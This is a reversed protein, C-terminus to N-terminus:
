IQPIGGIKGPMYVIYSTDSLKYIANISELTGIFAQVNETFEQTSPMQISNENLYNILKDSFAIYIGYKDELWKLFASLTDYSEGTEVLFLKLLLETIEGSMAFYKQRANNTPYVIRAQKGQGSLMSSVVLVSSSMKKNLEVIARAVEKREVNRGKFNIQLYDILFESAKDYDKKTGFSDFQALKSNKFIKEEDKEIITLENNKNRKFFATSGMYNKLRKEFFNESMRFIKERMDSFSGLASLHFKGSDTSFNPTGKILIIPENREFAKNVLYLTQYFNLFLSFLNIKRYIDMEFFCKSEPSLFSDFDKRFNVKFNKRVDVVEDPLVPTYEDNNEKQIEDKISESVINDIMSIINGYISDNNKANFMFNSIAEKDKKLLIDNNNEDSYLVRYLVSKSSDKAKDDKFLLKKTLPLLFKQKNKGPEYGYYIYAKVWEFFSKYLINKKSENQEKCIINASQEFKNEDLIDNMDSLKFKSGGRGLTYGFYNVLFENLIRIGPLVAKNVGIFSAYSTAETKQM